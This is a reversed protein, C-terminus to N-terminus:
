TLALNPDPNTLALVLIHTMIQILTMILTLILILIAALVLNLTKLAIPRM